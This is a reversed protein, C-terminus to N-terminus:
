LHLCLTELVKGSKSEWETKATRMCQRNSKISELISLVKLVKKFLKTSSLLSLVQAFSYLLFFDVQIISIFSMYVAFFINMITPLKGIFFDTDKKWWIRWMQVNSFCYPSFKLFFPEIWFIIKLLIFEKIGDISAYCGQSTAQINLERM